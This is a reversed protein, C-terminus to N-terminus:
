EEIEYDAELKINESSAGIMLKFKGAEVVFQKDRNYLGFSRPTITFTLTKTEGVDLHVREFGCLTKDFPTVSAVDDHIYLQVVEDGATKGSNRINVKVTLNADKKQKPSSIEMTSYEFTTYSMGFGFPFLVNKVNAEGVSGTKFPFCYPIQGVSKPFTVPLKGGPNYDGFLVDAVAKGTFEGLYWTELIAPM